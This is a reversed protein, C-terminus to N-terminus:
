DGLVEHWSARRAVGGLPNIKVSGLNGKSGGVVLLQDIVTPLTPMGIGLDISGVPVTGDGYTLEDDDPNNNRNVDVFYPDSSSTGSFADIANVFGSGGADCANDTPPIRSSFVLVTGRVQPRTVVREGASPTDLDVYWGKRGSPLSELPEFGRVRRGAVTTSVVIDREELDGRDVEANEDIVAYISQVSADVPDDSTMYSGTGVFVWRKSTSPDKAIAVGTTIPQGTSTTFLPSGGLAISATAGTFDFKWLNGLRDGAYVYDVTGNGDNDWGRPAFLGNDGGVGTDLKDIVDGTALDIIFLVANGGTSNLGNGVIAVRKDDDNLTAILPEGMVNGLDADTLEWLVDNARFDSPDSVDLGFLGKGGRGLSGVLYNAGPTQELTSVVVPGDVFYRHQYNTSSLMALDAFNILTPVYAFLEVGTRADFAHLMGDNAGVYVTNTNKVYFPSSNVIDGLASARDRLTGGNQRERTRVGKIYAVNDAGSVPAIPRTSQNLLATQATTPFTVGNGTATNRTFFKRTVTPLLEAAQWLPTPSVGALTADFAVLQGNWRGSVYSAQFVRTDNTFSTSNATVNSASGTREAVLSFADLLGRQFDDADNAVVFGGRGNVSAHWLDDIGEEDGTGTGPDPNPWGERSTRPTRPSISGELGISIAFTTMHQWTAPDATSTPVQNALDTRLDNKWYHMAVDALTRSHNDAYPPKAEYGNPGDTNDENGIADLADQVESSAEDEDQKNWYGDTTLIAFNQRCALQSTGTEPGWPGDADTNKFYEGANVLGTRLPTYSPSATNEDHLHAFWDEKNDDRFLGDDNGVPIDFQSAADAHINTYGIRLNSPLGYFAESAGAKAVKMRTRHYSYWTAINVKEQSLTRSTPLSATPNIWREVKVDVDRYRSAAAIGIYWTGATPSYITCSETNSGGISRCTYDSTTPAANFRLYLDAGNGDDNNASTNDGHTGGSLNVNIAGAGAPVTFTGVDTMGSNDDIDNVPYGSTNLYDTRLISGGGSLIDYRWYSATLALNTAGTKPVYFTFPRWTLNTSDGTLKTPDTLVSTYSLGATYRSGDAKIWPKYTVAPDYYITNRVAAFDRINAPSVNSVKTYMTTEEMSGSDDLIFMVNPPPYQAGSELPVNPFEVAKANGAAATLLCAALLSPLAHRSGARDYSQRKVNM